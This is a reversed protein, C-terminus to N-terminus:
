FRGGGAVDIDYSRMAVIQDDNGTLKVALYRGKAAFQNAWNTAGQTFTTETSFTPSDDPHMTTALQVIVETGAVADMHPRLGRPLKLRDTDGLSIGHKELYWPVSTGFDLSGVNAMGITPTSTSVILRKENSATENHSWARTITAWTATQASWANNTLNSSVLGSTGYTLSSVSFKSWTDDVWNWALVKNCDTQWTEPFCVWVETEQRNVCLFSRQAVSSDMNERLYERVVGEAISVAEGGDHLMVDGNTLFVHGRPTAAVCGRALLGDTGPLRQATFGSGDFRLAHRGEQMYAILVDGLAMFDVFDGTGTLAFEDADNTSTSAYATPLAGPDASNSHRIRQPDKTGGSTIGGFFLFQKFPYIADAIDGGPWGTLSALNNATNGDWYMPADVGNNMVLLGNFNGGTWRNDRAGTPASGTIETRTVGDDVFVKNTGGQVIFRTTATNFCTLWYVAATPTTYKAQIGKRKIAFKKRFRINNSDSWWGPLLESPLLDLNVGLGCDKIPIM